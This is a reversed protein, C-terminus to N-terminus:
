RRALDARTEAPTERLEVFDYHPPTRLGELPGGVALNNTRHLLHHVGPHAPDLTGYVREAEAARDHEWVEAVRQVALPLGEADRLVLAGAQAAAEGTAADVDLTVPIPWLEGGPLRMSDCVSETARRDLFGDLPAFAGNMLMELDCFQRATLTWSPLLPLAAVLEAAREPGALLHGPETM